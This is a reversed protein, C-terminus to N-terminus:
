SLALGIPNVGDPNTQPVYFGHLDRLAFSHLNTFGTGDTNVAFLAGSGWTGGGGATGYLTNGALILSSPYIGDNNVWYWASEPDLQNVATFSHLITFTQAGLRGAPIWTLVWILAPILLLNKTKMKPLVGEVDIEPKM